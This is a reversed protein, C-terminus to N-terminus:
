FKDHWYGTVRGSLALQGVRKDVEPLIDRPTSGELPTGPLPTLYHVHATGFRTVERVLSLTAEEDEDSAFPFGFIVDVM